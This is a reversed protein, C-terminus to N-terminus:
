IAGRQRIEWSVTEAAGGDYEASRRQLEALCEHTLAPLSDTPLIDCIVDILQIQDEISLRELDALVSEFSPM